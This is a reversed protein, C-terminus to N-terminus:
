PSNESNETTSWLIGELELCFLIQEPLNPLNFIGPLGLFWVQNSCLQSCLLKPFCELVGCTQKPSGRGTTSSCRHYQPGSVLNGRLQEPLFVHLFVMYVRWLPLSSRTVEAGPHQEHSDLSCMSDLKLAQTISNRIKWGRHHCIICLVFQTHQILRNEKYTVDM